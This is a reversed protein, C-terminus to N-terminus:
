RPEDAPPLNVPTLGDVVITVRQDFDPGPITKDLSTATVTYAVPDFRVTHPGTYLSSSAVSPFSSVDTNTTTPCTWTYAVIDNGDPWYLYLSDSQVNVALLNRFVPAGPGRAATGTCAGDQLAASFAIDTSVIELPTSLYSFLGQHGADGDPRVRGDHLTGRVRVGLTATATETGTLQQSASHWTVSFTAHITGRWETLTVPNSGHGDVFLQLAGGFPTTPLHFVYLADSVTVPVPAGAFTLTVNSSTGRDAQVYLNGDLNAVGFISPALAGFTADGNSEHFALRAEVVGRDSTVPHSLDLARDHMDRAIAEWDFPRQPPSEPLYANEVTRPRARNAGLLRDFVWPSAALATTVDVEDSWGAYVTANNGLVAGRFGEAATPHDSFCANVYVLSRPGFTVHETVFPAAIAYHRELVRGRADPKAKCGVPVDSEGRYGPAIVDLVAPIPRVDLDAQFRAYSDANACSATWLAFLEQTPLVVDFGHGEIYVVPAATKGADLYDDLTGTADVLTYGPQYSGDARFLPQLDDLASPGLSHFVTVRDGTPIERGRLQPALQADAARGGAIVLVRGDTYVVDVDPGPAPTASAVDPLTAAFAALDRMSAADLTDITALRDLIADASAEHPDSADVGGDSSAHPTSCGVLVLALGLKVDAVAARRRGASSGIQM